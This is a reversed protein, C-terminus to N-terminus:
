PLLIVEVGHSLLIDIISHFINLNLVIDNDDNYFIKKNYKKIYSRHKKWEMEDLHKVAVSSDKWIVKFPPTIGFGGCLCDDLGDLCSGFYTGPGNLAEAFAIFFSEYSTINKGDLYFTKNTNQAVEKYRCCHMIRLMRLWDQRGGYDLTIWENKETPLNLIWQNWLKLENKQQLKM